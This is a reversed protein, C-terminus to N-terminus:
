SLHHKVACRVWSNSMKCTQVLVCACILPPPEPPPRAPCMIYEFGWFSEFIMGGVILSMWLLYWFLLYGSIMGFMAVWVEYVEVLSYITSLLVLSSVPSAVTAAVPAPTPPPELLMLMMGDAADYLWGFNVTESFDIHVPVYLKSSVKAKAVPVAAVTAVTAVNAPTPAFAMGYFILCALTVLLKLIM